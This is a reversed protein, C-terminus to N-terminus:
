DDARPEFVRTLAVRRATAGDDFPQTRGPLRQGDGVEDGAAVQGLARRIAVEGDELLRTGDMADDGASTESPELQSLIEGLVVMMQDARGAPLHLVESSRRREFATEVFSDGLDLVAGAERRGVM